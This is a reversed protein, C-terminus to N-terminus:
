APEEQFRLVGPAQPNKIKLWAKSSGSRYPHERNKSVIGECGLKCAHAFIAAGDGQLHEVFQIGLGLAKRRPKGKALLGIKLLRELQAKREDLPRSRWDEGDLELLDFAYLFAEDDHARSHLKEFVAVGADDCVVAEGDITVSASRLAAVAASIRPYRETWDFGRRTFLRVRGDRKRAILRYGDHKIEHIWQPGVPPKSARTPICPEIIGPRKAPRGTRQLMDTFNADRALAPLLGAFWRPRSIACRRSQAVARVMSVIETAAQSM